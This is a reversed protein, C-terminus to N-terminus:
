FPNLKRRFAQLSNGCVSAAIGKLSELATEARYKWVDAAPPLTVGLWDYLAMCVMYEHATEKIKLKVEPTLLFKLDPNESLSIEFSCNNEPCEVDIDIVKSELVPALSHLIDSYALSLIRAVRSINGEECIDRVQHLSHSPIASDAIVFAMNAIDYLLAKQSLIM